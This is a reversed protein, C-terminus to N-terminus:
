LSGSLGICVWPSMYLGTSVWPSKYLGISVWPTRYLGLSLQISVQHLSRHCICLHDAPQSHATLAWFHSNGHMVAKLYNVESTQVTHATRSAYLQLLLRRSVPICVSPTVMCCVRTDDSFPDLSGLLWRVALGCLIIAIQLLIVPPRPRSYHGGPVGLHILPLSQILVYDHWNECCGIPVGDWSSSSTQDFSYESSFDHNLLIM